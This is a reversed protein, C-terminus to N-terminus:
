PAPAQPVVPAQPEARLPIRTDRYLGIVRKGYDITILFRSLIRNGIRATPIDAYGVDISGFDTGALVVQATGRTGRTGPLTLTDPSATDVIAAIRRGDVTVYIMPAEAYSFLQMLGPHIGARQFTVLGNHYNISIAHNRWVDAGLIADAAGALDARLPALRVSNKDRLQLTLDRARTLPFDDDVVTRPTATGLVFRGTRGDLTVTQMEILNRDLMFAFNVEAGAPPTDRWPLVRACGAAVLALALATARAPSKSLM